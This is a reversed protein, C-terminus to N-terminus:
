RQVERRERRTARRASIIRVREERETFSVVLMEGAPTRALLIERIEGESHDPDSYTQGLPDIFATQAMEFSIGHRIENIRAKVPDWEFILKLGRGGGGL